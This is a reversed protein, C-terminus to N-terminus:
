LFMDRQENKFQAIKKMLGIKADVKQLAPPSMFMLLEELQAVDGVNQFTKVKNVFVVSKKNRQLLEIVNNLTGSSKCDWVMLGFDADKAMAVDKATFFARSGPKLEGVEISKVPWRGLNNRPASGSCYVLASDANAECLYSQISSDVGDADGVLISYDQAIINDIRQKVKADLNKISISGAIFVATM